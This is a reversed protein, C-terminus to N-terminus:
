LHQSSRSVSLIVCSASTLQSLFLARVKFFMVVFGRRKQRWICYDFLLKRFVPMDKHCVRFFAFQCNKGVSWSNWVDSIFFRCDITQGINHREKCFSRPPPAVGINNFIILFFNKSCTHISKGDRDYINFKPLIPCRYM